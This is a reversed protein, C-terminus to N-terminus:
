NQWLRWQSGGDAVIVIVELCIQFIMQNTSLKSRVETMVLSM